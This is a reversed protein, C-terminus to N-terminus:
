LLQRRNSRPYEADVHGGNSYRGITKMEMGDAMTAFGSEHGEGYRIMGINHLYRTLFDYHHEKIMLQITRRWDWLFKDTQEPSEVVYGALAPLWPVPDYGRHHKFGELILPTWNTFGAEFSDFMIARLGREGVLGKAADRYM